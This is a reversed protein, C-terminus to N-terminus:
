LRKYPFMSFIMNGVTVKENIIFVSALTSTETFMAVVM